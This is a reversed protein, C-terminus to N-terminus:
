AFLEAVPCSFGPLVDEGTLTDAETLIRLDTLSRYIYVKKNEIDVLWVVKTGANLYLALKQQVDSWRDNPSVVEVALDPEFPVFGEPLSGQPIREKSVFAVDADRVTDPDRTLVFGTDSAFVEGLKQALVYEGLRITVKAVVKGHMGGTLGMEVLEGKVLEYRFSDSSMEYLEEATILTKTEMM